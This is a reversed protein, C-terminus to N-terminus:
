YKHEAVTNLSGVEESASLDSRAEKTGIRLGQKKLQPVTECGAASQSEADEAITRNSGAEEAAGRHNGAQEDEPSNTRAEEASASQSREEKATSLNRKGVQTGDNDSAVERLSSENMVDNLTRQNREEEGTARDSKVEEGANSQSVSELHKKVVECSNEEAGRYSETDKNPPSDNDSTTIMMLDDMDSPRQEAADNGTQQVAESDDKNDLCEQKEKDLPCEDNKGAISSTQKLCQALHQQIRRPCWVFEEQPRYHKFAFKVLKQREQKNRVSFLFYDMISHKINWLTKKILAENLFFQVLPAQFHEFGLEGLCKLIRTIRLNNHTNINLNYFREEWNEARQVKGTNKDLLEIGYFDLMLEYSEVLRRKAEDNKRFEETERPTLEAAYINMGPEQLPFLWQIFSHVQELREYNGRWERHFDEITFGAGTVLVHNSWEPDDTENGVAPGTYYHRYRQMDRAARINRRSWKLRPAGSWPKMHQESNCGYDEDEWTSDYECELDDEDRDQDEYEGIGKGLGCLSVM